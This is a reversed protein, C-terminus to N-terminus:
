RFWNSKKEGKITMKKTLLNDNITLSNLVKVIKKGANGLGYPNFTTKCKNRHKEDFLCKM